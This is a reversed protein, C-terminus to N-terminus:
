SKKEGKTQEEEHVTAVVVQSASQSVSSVDDADPDLIAGDPPALVCSPQGEPTPFPDEEEWYDQAAISDVVKAVEASRHSKRSQASIVDVTEDSTSMVEDESDFADSGEEEDGQQEAPNTPLLQHPQAIMHVTPPPVFTYPPAGLSIAFQNLDNSSESWVGPPAPPPPPPQLTQFNQFNWPSRPHQQYLTSPQSPSAIGANASADLHCVVDHRTGRFSRGPTTSVASTFPSKTPHILPESPCCANPPTPFATLPDSLQSVQKFPLASTPPMSYAQSPPNQIQHQMAAQAAATAAMLAAMMVSDPTGDGGTGTSTGGCGAGGTPCCNESSSQQVNQQQQQQQAMLYAMMVSKSALLQQQDASQNQQHFSNEAAVSQAWHLADLLLMRTRWLERWTAGAQEALLNFSNYSEAGSSSALSLRSTTGRRSGGGDLVKQSRELEMAAAAAYLRSLSEISLNQQNKGANSTSAASSSAARHLILLSNLSQRGEEGGGGFDTLGLTSYSRSVLRRRSTHFAPSFPNAIDRFAFKKITLFLHYSINESFLSHELAAAAAAVLKDEERKQLHSISSLIAAGGDSASSKSKHRNTSQQHTLFLSQSSNLSNSKHMPQQQRKLALGGITVTTGVMTGTGSSSVVSSANGAGFGGGGGIRVTSAGNAAGVSSLIWSSPTFSFM